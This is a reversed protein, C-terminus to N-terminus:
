WCWSRGAAVSWRTSSLCRRDGGASGADRLHVLCGDRGSGRGRRGAGRHSLPCQDKGALPRARGPPSPFRDPRPRYRGCHRARGRAAFSLRYIRRDLDRRRSLDKGTVEIQWHELAAELKLGGRSVYKLDEGLLRIEASTEVSAGAKEIKQGDVLVKGALILAQARERSTTM